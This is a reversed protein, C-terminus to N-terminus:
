SDTRDSGAERRTLQVIPITRQVEAADRRYNAFAPFVRDALLWLRERDAEDNVVAARMPVGGFTVDPHARLNHYWAPNKTAGANSAVITVRDGDHFYIIANRRRAGSRAGETELLATPFVLTTAVRGRTIRLLLPDLKWNIHRSVFKAFRTAALAAYGRRFAGPPRTPDVYKPGASLASAGEMWKYHM